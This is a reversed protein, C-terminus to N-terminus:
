GAHGAPDTQTGVDDPDRRHMALQRTPRASQREPYVQSLKLAVDPLAPMQMGLQRTSPSQM